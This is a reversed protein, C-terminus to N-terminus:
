VRIRVGGFTIADGNRDILYRTEAPLDGFAVLRLEGVDNMVFSGGYMAAIYGLTERCTYEGPYQVNYGATMMAVTREDLDFGLFAAIERVVDIDKAPWEMDSGPYDQNAKMMGDYGHITLLVIGSDDDNEERSDVYFVGKSLWESYRAGDTLRVYPVLKAQRPIAVAPKEMVIDIEASVCDGVSPTVGSFMGLTTGMSRLIDMGCFTSIEELPTDKNGIGLRCEKQHPLGLIEKYLDSTSRM